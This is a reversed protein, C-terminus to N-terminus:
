VMQEKRIVCVAEDLSRGAAHYAAATGAAWGTRLAIGIVRVSAQAEQAASIGRGGVFVNKIDVPRLCGIPIEYYDGAPMLGLRM